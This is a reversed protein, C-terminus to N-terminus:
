AGRSRRNYYRSDIAPPTVVARIRGPEALAMPPCAKTMFSRGVSSREGEEM